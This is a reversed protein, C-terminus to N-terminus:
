YLPGTWQNAINVMLQLLQLTIFLAEQFFKRGPHQEWVLHSTVQGVDCKPRLPQHSANRKTEELSLLGHYREGARSIQFSITARQSQALASTFKGGTKHLKDQTVDNQDFCNWSVKLVLITGEKLLFSIERGGATCLHGTIDKEEARQGTGSLNNTSKNSTVQM